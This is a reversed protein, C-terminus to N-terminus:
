PLSALPAHLRTGAQTWTVEASGTSLDAKLVAEDGDCARSM